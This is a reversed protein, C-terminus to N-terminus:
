QFRIDQVITSGLQNNLKAIIEKKRLTLENRWTSTRVRVILVGKTIKVPESIEAIRTGVCQEWKTIAEYERLPQEIGLEGVLKQLIDGVSQVNQLKNHQM